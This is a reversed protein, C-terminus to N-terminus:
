THNRNGEKRWNVLKDAKEGVIRGVAKHLLIM